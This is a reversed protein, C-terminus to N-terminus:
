TVSDFFARSDFWQFSNEFTTAFSGCGFFNVIQGLASRFHKAPASEVKDKVGKFGSLLLAKLDWGVCYVALLGLDHIHLDGEKHAKKIENPYIRNLWYESTIAASIYNNLGQLSYPMNSGERVKWDLEDLYNEMLEVNATTLMDRIKTRQERYLIYAKATKRFPSALLVSEVADQIEAVDPVSSVPLTRALELANCSLKEAETQDFEGTANGAKAIAASIRSPDFSVIRRDRKRIHESM